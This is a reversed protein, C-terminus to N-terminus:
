EYTYTVTTTTTRNPDIAWVGWSAPTKKFSVFSSGKKYKVIGHQAAYALTQEINKFYHFHNYLYKHEESFQCIYHEPEIPLGVIEHLYQLTKLDGSCIVVGMDVDVDTLQGGHEYAYQLCEQHGYHAAAVCIDTKNWPCENEILYKLCAINGHSAANYTAESNWPCGNEHAYMLCDLNNNKAANRCTGEEWPYNNKHAHHLCDIHGKYAIFRCVTFDDDDDDEYPGFGCKCEDCLGDNCLETM